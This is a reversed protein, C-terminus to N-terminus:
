RSELERILSEAKPKETPAKEICLKIEHPLSGIVNIHKNVDMNYEQMM